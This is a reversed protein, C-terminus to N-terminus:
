RGKRLFTTFAKREIASQEDESKSETGPRNRKVIEADVKDNVKKLEATFGDMKGTPATSLEEIAKVPDPEGGDGAGSEDKRELPPWDQWAERLYHKTM